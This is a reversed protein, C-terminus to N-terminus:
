ESRSIELKVYEESAEFVSIKYDDWVLELVENEDTDLSSFYLMNSKSGNKQKNISSISIQYEVHSGDFNGDPDVNTEVLYDYNIALNDIEVVRNPLAYFKKGYDLKEVLLSSKNEDIDLSFIYGFLALPYNKVEYSDKYRAWLFGVKNTDQKTVELELQHLLLDDKVPGKQVYLNIPRIVVDEYNTSSNSGEVLPLVLVGDNRERVHNLFIFLLFILLVVFFVIVYPSTITM